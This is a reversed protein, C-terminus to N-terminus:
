QCDGADGTDVFTAVTATFTQGEVGNVTLGGTGVLPAEAINTTDTVTIPPASEHTITVTITPFGHFANTEETYAHTGTVIFVGKNDPGSITGTSTTGDGWNVTATYDGPNTAIEPGGTDVFTAVTATFAQGEVGNITFGGTGVLPAEAINTNDTVTVTQSGCTISVTIVFPGGHFENGEEVYAHTGSVTLVGKQDPGTISGISATGDGWNIVATCGSSSAPGTFTAVPVNSLLQGELGNITGVGSASTIM